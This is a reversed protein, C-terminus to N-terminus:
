QSWIAEWQNQKQTIVKNEEAKYVIILFTLVFTPFLWGKM